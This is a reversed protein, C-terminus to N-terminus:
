REGGLARKLAHVARIIDKDREYCEDKAVMRALQLAIDQAAAIIDACKKNIAALCANEAENM